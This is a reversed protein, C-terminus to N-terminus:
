WKQLNRTNNKNTQKNNTKKKKKKSKTVHGRKTSVQRGFIALCIRAPHTETHEATKLADTAAPGHEHHM